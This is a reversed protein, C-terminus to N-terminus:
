KPPTLGRLRDALTKKGNRLGSAAKGGGASGAGDDEPWWGSVTRVGLAIVGLLM